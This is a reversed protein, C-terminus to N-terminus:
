LCDLNEKYYNNLEWFNFMENSLQPEESFLWIQGNANIAVWRPNYPCDLLKFRIVDEIDQLTLKKDM